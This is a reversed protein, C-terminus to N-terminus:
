RASMADNGGDADTACEARYRDNIPAQQAFLWASSPIQVGIALATTRLLERRQRKPGSIQLHHSARAHYLARHLQHSCEDPHRRIDQPQANQEQV